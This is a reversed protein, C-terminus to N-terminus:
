CCVAPRLPRAWGVVFRRWPCRRFPSSAGRSRLLAPQGPRGRPQVSSSLGVWVHCRASPHFRCAVDAVSPVREACRWARLGQPRGGRRRLAPRLGFVAASGTRALRPFRQRTRRRLVSDYYDPWRGAGPFVIRAGRSHPDVLALAVVLAAGFSFACRRWSARGDGSDTRQSVGSWGALWGARPPAPERERSAIPCRRTVDGFM